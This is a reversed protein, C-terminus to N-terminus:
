QAVAKWDSPDPYRDLAARLLAEGAGTLMMRERTTWSAGSPPGGAIPKV